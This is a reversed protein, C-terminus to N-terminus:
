KWLILIISTLAFSVLQYGANLIYLTWPKGEWLVSGLMSTAIFGIWVIFSLLLGDTISVAGTWTLMHSIIISTVIAGIFALIYSATMGKQKMEEKSPMVIGSLRMWASGFVNPNYWIMGLIMTAIASVLLAWYNIDTFFTLM